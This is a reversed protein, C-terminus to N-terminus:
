CPCLVSRCNFHNPPTLRDLEPDNARFIRGDLYTYVPTTRTDIIASYQVGAMLPAVEM